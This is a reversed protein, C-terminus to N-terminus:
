VATGHIEPKKMKREKQYQKNEFHYSVVSRKEVCLTTGKSLPPCLIVNDVKDWSHYIQLFGTQFIKHICPHKFLILDVM